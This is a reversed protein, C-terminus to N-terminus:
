FTSTVRGAILVGVGLTIERLNLKGLIGHEWIGFTGSRSELDQGKGV